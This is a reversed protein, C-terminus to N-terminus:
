KNNPVFDRPAHNFNCSSTEAYQQKLRDQGDNFDMNEPACWVGTSVLMSHFKRGRVESEKSYLNAGFIDSMINDGICYVDSLSNEQPIQEELVTEAYQYTM